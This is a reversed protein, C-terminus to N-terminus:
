FLFYFVLDQKEENYITNIKERRGDAHLSVSYLGGTIEDGTSLLSPEVSRGFPDRNSPHCPHFGCPPNGLWKCIYSSYVVTLFLSFFCISLFLFFSAHTSPLLHRSARAVRDFIPTGSSTFRMSMQNAPQLAGYMAMISIPFTFTQLFSPAKNTTKTSAKFGLFIYNSWDAQYKKECKKIIGGSTVWQARFCGGGRSRVDPPSIASPLCM